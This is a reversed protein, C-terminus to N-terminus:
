ALARWAAEWEGPGLGPGRRTDAGPVSWVLVTTDSSGSALSLGDSAFALAEVPGRHGALSRLRRGTAVDWLPVQRVLGGTALLRGDPSFAVALARDAPAALALREKGTATEWLALLGVERGGVRRSGGLAVAKGDPSFALCHAWTDPLEVRISER